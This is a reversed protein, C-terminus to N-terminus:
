AVLRRFEEGDRIYDAEDYPQSALVLLRAAPSFHQEAWVMPPIYLGITPRELLFTRSRKGNFTTVTVAGCVCVLLQELKRHAHAGRIEKRPIDYGIFFREARFPLGAGLEGIALKGRAQDVGQFEVLLPESM